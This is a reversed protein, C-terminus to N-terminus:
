SQNKVEFHVKRHHPNSNAEGFRIESPIVIHLQAPEIGNQQLWNFVVEARQQSLRQNHQKSGRGDADGIIQLQLSQGLKHSFIFLKQMKKLLIQLNAEQEPLFKSSGEAFSLQIKEIQQILIHSENEADILHSLDIDAFTKPSIPLTPIRQQLKAYTTSDVLGRLYLIREHVELMVHDPPELIRKAEMALFPDTEVLESTEISNIGTVWPSQMAEKIWSATAHGRLYLIDGQVRISVTVPPVLRLRARQEIFPATLDLYPTWQSEIEKDSLEFRSAIEAPDAALPDRIGYLFFKGDQQRSAIVVIGPTKQLTQLYAQWHQKVQFHWYGWGTFCLLILSIIGILQPSFFRRSTQTESKTESQLAKELLPQCNQLLGIEGAFQQLLPGYDAHLTELLSRMTNRFHYPAVGRIVCALVAYPGRELWVTYEGIEVSDLEETKTSSFSDRIFDQIATLMASVADSDGIEVEKQHLHQVLLGSDRHILFVQEIQYILTNQLIVESFSRGSRWAQLRWRLGQISLSQELSQNISQILNKLSENISKRIAPGMVPFLANAFPRTDQNISQQICYEVPKQLSATLEAVEDSNPSDFRQSAQRIAYPLAKAMEQTRLEADNIQIELDHLRGLLPEINNLRNILQTIKTQTVNKLEVKLGEIYTLQQELSAELNQDKKQLGKLRASIQDNLAKKFQKVEPPWKELAELRTQFQELRATQKELVNLSTQQQELHFRIEEGSKLHIQELKAISEDLLKLRVQQLNEIDYELVELHIQQEELHHTRQELSELHTQQINLFERISELAEALAQNKSLM